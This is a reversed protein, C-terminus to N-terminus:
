RVEPAPKALDVGVVDAADTLDIAQLVGWILATTRAAVDIDCNAVTDSPQHWHPVSADDAANSAPLATFALPRLGHRAGLSLESYTASVRRMQAQFEPHAAQVQQALQLLGTASAALQLLTESQLVTPQTGPGAIRNIVLHIPRTAGAHVHERAHLHERIFADAGSGGAEGGGTFVLHVEHHQLPSQALQAALELGAAIGSANDNAGPSFPSRAAQILLAFILLVFAGPVLAIWRLAELSTVFGVLYLVWLAVLSILGLPLMLRFFRLGTPTSFFWPTRHTDLHTTILIPAHRKSLAAAQEGSMSSVSPFHVFVNQSYEASLWWRLPNDRLTLEYFLAAIVVGLLLLAALAMAQADRLHWFLFLSLLALGTALIYPAYASTLGLFNQQQPTLGMAKLEAAVLQAVHEEAESASGREAMKESVFAIVDHLRQEVTGASRLTVLPIEPGESSPKLADPDFADGNHEEQGKSGDTDDSPSQRESHPTAQDPVPEDSSADSPNSSSSPGISMIANDGFAQEDPALNM